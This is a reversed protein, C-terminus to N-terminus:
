PHLRTLSAVSHSNVLLLVYIHLYQVVFDQIFQKAQTMQKKATTVSIHYEEAITEYSKGENRALYVNRRAPSLLNIASQLVQEYQRDQVRHDANDVAIGPTNRHFHRLALQEAAKKKFGDYIRNRALIFLYNTFNDIGSLVERKLWIKMFVEQVVENADLEDKLYVMAANFVEPAYHRYVQTYAAQDGAAIAMLLTKENYLAVIALLITKSM